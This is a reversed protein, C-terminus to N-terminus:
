TLLHDLAKQFGRTITEEGDHRGERVRWKGGVMVDRVPTDNGAFVLADLLLDGTRGYLARHAPDLVVLDARAGPALFGIPRGLAQAGGAVAM